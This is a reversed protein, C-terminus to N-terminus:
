VNSCNVKTENYIIILTNELIILTNELIYVYERIYINYLM